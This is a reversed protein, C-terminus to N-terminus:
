AQAGTAPNPATQKRAKYRATAERTCARCTRRVRAGIPTVRTNAADLLHGSACHTKAANVAQLSKGRLTNERRSALELHAPNVCCRHLCGIGGACTEDRNHCQHDLVLGDPVPGRTVLYAFRHARLASWFHFGGYGDTTLRATWVWCEGTVAFKAEFRAIDAATVQREEGNGLRLVPLPSLCLPALLSGTTPLDCIANSM